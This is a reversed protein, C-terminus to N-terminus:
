ELFPYAVLAVAWLILVLVFPDFKGSQKKPELVYNQIIM